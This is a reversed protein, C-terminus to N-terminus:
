GDILGARHAFVVAQVRDRLGLKSLVRSVYTKATERSVFMAEAIESNSRGDALLRLAELERVTLARLPASDLLPPRIREGFAGILARTAAPDILADGAAITRLSDLLTEPKADKLLFGSAGARLAEYVYEDLNFTTVVLIRPVHDPHSSALIESTAAIGDLGPMRVDMVILDPRLREASRVAELGDAAVGAVELDDQSSIVRAYAETVLPQDDVILVRLPHTVRVLDVACVDM